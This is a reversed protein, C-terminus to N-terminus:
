ASGEPEGLTTGLHVRSERQYHRKRLLIPAELLYWSAAAVGIAAVAAVMRGSTTLPRGGPELSILLWNWLYLGYSIRGFWRLVGLKLIPLKDVGLVLVGGGLAVPFMLLTPPRWDAAPMRTIALPILCVGVLTLVAIAKPIPLRVGARLWSALACGTLLFVANGDPSYYAWGYGLLLIAAVHWLAAAGWTWTVFRAARRRDGRARALVLGLALPWLLYFQEEVALSWTHALVPVHGTATAFDQVYFVATALGPAVGGLRPDGAAWLLLPTVAVILALAPFLRLARRVYFDRLRVSGWGDREKLLLSTILYGSLVFFIAVGASGLQDAHYSSVHSGVVM